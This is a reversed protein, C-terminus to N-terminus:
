GPRSVLELEGQQFDALWITNGNGDVNEAVVAATSSDPGYLHVITATDGVRPARKVGETGDFERNTTLLKVVRVVDYERLAGM